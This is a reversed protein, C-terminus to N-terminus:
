NGYYTLITTRCGLKMYWSPARPSPLIVLCSPHPVSLFGYFVSLLPQPESLSLLSIYPHRPHPHPNPRVPSVFSVLVKRFNLPAIALPIPINFPTHLSPSFPHLVCASHRVCLIQYRLAMRLDPRSKARFFILVVKPGILAPM